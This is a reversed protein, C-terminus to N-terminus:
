SGSGQAQAQAQAEAEAKERKVKEKERASKKVDEWKSHYMRIKKEQKQALAELKEHQEAQSSLQTELARVRGLAAQLDQASEMPAPAAALAPAHPSSHLSAMSQAIAAMSADQAHVEFNALRSALQELTTKLTTNELELEEATRSKGFAARSHRPSTVGGGGGVEGEQADVFTEQDEGRAVAANHMQQNRAIDAYSYTGGGKQVVYFSEAPGFVQGHAGRQRHEDEIATLAAKSFYKKVDPETTANVTRNSRDKRRPQAEAPQPLAESRQPEEATLPLGAYALVSSLKSMTGTTLNNYFTAFGEDDTRSPAQKAPLTASSEMISPPIRPAVANKRRQSEPSLQRSRTVAPPSATSGQPPRIGRRSAIDRALSPSSERARANMRAAAIASTTSTKKPPTGEATTTGSAEADDKIEKSESTIATEVIAENLQATNHSKIIRALKEHQSELLRLVRLAESDGATKAARSFDAAANRHEEAAEDWHIKDTERAANRAHVHASNLPAVDAM